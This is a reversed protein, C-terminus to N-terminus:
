DRKRLERRERHAADYQEQITCPQSGGYFDECFANWAHESLADRCDECLQWGHELYTAARERDYESECRECNM